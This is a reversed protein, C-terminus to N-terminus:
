YTQSVDWYDLTKCYSKYIFGFLFLWINKRATLKNDHHEYETRTVNVGSSVTKSDHFSLTKINLWIHFETRAMQLISAPIFQDFGFSEAHSRVLLNQAHFFEGTLSCTSTFNTSRHLERRIYLLENNCM